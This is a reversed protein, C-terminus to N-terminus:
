GPFESSLLELAQAVALEGSSAENSVALVARDADPVVYAESYWYTNSGNHLAVPGNPGDVVIWGLAYGLHPADAVPAVPAFLREVTVADVYESDGTAGRLLEGLFRSWDSMTCHVTGAPGVAPPLGDFVPEGSDGDHGRPQTLDAETGPAGFGCSTMELPEFVQSRMLDEWAEGTAAELAAGVIVYGANSYNSLTGPENAPAQALVMRAVEFRGAAADFQELFAEIDPPLQADTPAGGAHALLDAITVDAYGADVDVSSFAEALTTDFGIGAGNAELRGVLAATMAKTNSGIHFLDDPTAPADDGRARVGATAVGLVGGSDIAMAGLAPVGTTEVISALGAALDHSPGSPDTTQPLQTTAPAATTQPAVTTAPAAQTWPPPDDTPVVTTTAPSAGAGVLPEGDDTDDDGGGCASAVLAVAVSITAFATARTKTAM